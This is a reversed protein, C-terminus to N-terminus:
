GLRVPIQDGFQGLQFKDGKGNMLSGSSSFTSLLICGGDGSFFAKSTSIVLCFKHLLTGTFNLSSAGLNVPSNKQSPNQLSITYLKMDSIFLTARVSEIKKGIKSRPIRSPSINVLPLTAWNKKKKSCITFQLYCYPMDIM